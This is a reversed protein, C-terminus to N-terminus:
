LEGKLLQKIIKECNARLEDMTMSVSEVGEVFDDDNSPFHDYIIEEFSVESIFKHYQDIIQNRVMISLCCNCDCTGDQNHDPYRMKQASNM